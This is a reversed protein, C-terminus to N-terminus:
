RGKKLQPLVPPVGSPLPASADRLYAEVDRYM